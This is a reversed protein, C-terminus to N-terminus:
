NVFIEYNGSSGSFGLEYILVLGGADPWFLSRSIAKPDVCIYVEFVFSFLDFM